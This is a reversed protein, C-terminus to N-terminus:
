ATATVRRALALYNDIAGPLVDLHVITGNPHPLLDVVVAVAPTDEDGAVVLTGPVILAPDRAEDLFTWVYGTEDETNLDAVIDM